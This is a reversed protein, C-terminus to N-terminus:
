SSPAGQSNDRVTLDVAGVSAAPRTQRAEIEDISTDFLEALQLIRDLIPQSEVHEKKAAEAMTALSQTLEGTVREIEARMEGEVRVLIAERRAKMTRRLVQGLHERLLTPAYATAGFAAGLILLAVGLFGGTFGVVVALIASVAFVMAPARTWARLSRFRDVVAHTVVGPPDCEAISRHLSAVHAACDDPFAGLEAAGCEELASRQQNWALRLTTDCHEAALQVTRVVGERVREELERRFTERWDLASTWLARQKIRRRLLEEGRRQAAEFIQTLSWLDRDLKRLAEDRAGAIALQQAEGLAM